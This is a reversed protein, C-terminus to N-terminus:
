SHGSGSDPTKSKIPSYSNIKGASNGDTGSLSRPRRCMNQERRLEAGIFRIYGYTHMYM